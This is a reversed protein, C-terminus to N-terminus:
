FPKTRSVNDQTLMYPCDKGLNILWIEGDSCPVRGVGDILFPKNIVDTPLPSNGPMSKVYVTEGVGYPPPSSPKNSM